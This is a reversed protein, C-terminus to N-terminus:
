SSSRQSSYPCRSMALARFIAAMSRGSVPRLRDAVDLALQQLDVPGAATLRAGRPAVERWAWVANWALVKLQDWHEALM